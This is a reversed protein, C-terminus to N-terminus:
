TLLTWLILFINGGPCNNKCQSFPLRRQFRRCEAFPDLESQEDEPDSLCFGGDVLSSFNFSNVGNIKTKIDRIPCRFVPYVFGDENLLICENYSRGNYYFPFKCEFEIKHYQDINSQTNRCTNEGDDPDGSGTNCAKDMTDTMEYKMNYQEAIWPLFCSLKTYTTPNQSQQRLIYTTKNAFSEDLTGFEFQDCGKVFSLVGEIFYKGDTGNSVMLPSGSDGTSFCSQISFDKACVTGPPYSSNSPYLLPGSCLVSDQPDECTELIDMKYHWQKYFDQYELAYGLALSQVFSYPPPKSWGTHIGTRPKENTQPPLCAPWLEITDTKGNQIKTDDVKFVVLDNGGNLADFQPHRVIELIPLIINYEEGTTDSSAMSTDFEGCLIFSDDGTMDVVEPNDGCESNSEKCGDSRDSCCCPPVERAGDKCLYTCHAAGVVVTPKPPISLLNVACRHAPRPGTSRLSCVWPYRHRTHNYQLETKFDEAIYHVPSLRFTDVNRIKEKINYMKNSRSVLFNEDNFNAYIAAVEFRCSTYILTQITNWIFRPKEYIIKLCQETMLLKETIDSCTGKTTIFPEDPDVFECEESVPYIGPGLDLGMYTINCVGKSTIDNLLSTVCTNEEM